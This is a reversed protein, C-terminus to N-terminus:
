GTLGGPFSWDHLDLLGAEEAEAFKTRVSKIEIWVQQGHKVTKFEGDRAMRLISVFSMEVMQAVMRSSAYGKNLM